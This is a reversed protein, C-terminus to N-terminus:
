FTIKADITIADTLPNVTLMKLKGVSMKLQVKQKMNRPCPRDLPMKLLYRSKLTLTTCTNQSQDTKIREAPKAYFM